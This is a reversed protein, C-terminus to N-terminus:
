GGFFTGDDAVYITLHFGDTGIPCLAKGCVASCRGAIRADRPSAVVIPDFRTWCRSRRVDLWISLEHDLKLFAFRSLFSVAAVSVEYGATRLSEVMDETHVHRDPKWGAGELLDVVDDPISPMSMM